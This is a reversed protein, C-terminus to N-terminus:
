SFLKVLWIIWFVVFLVYCAFALIYFIIGAGLSGGGGFAVAAIISFIIAGALFIIWLKLYKSADNHHGYPLLKKESQVSNSLDSIVNIRNIVKMIQEFKKDAFGTKSTAESEKSISPHLMPSKVPRLKPASNKEVQLGSIEQDKAPLSNLEKKETIKPSVVNAAATTNHDAKILHLKHNSSTTVQRVQSCSSLLIISAAIILLSHVNIKKM